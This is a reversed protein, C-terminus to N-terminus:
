NDFNPDPGPHQRTRKKTKAEKRWYRWLSRFIDISSACINHCFHTNSVDRKRISLDQLVNRDIDRCELDVGTRCSFRFRFCRFLARVLLLLTVDFAVVFLRFLTFAGRFFLLFVFSRRRRGCTRTLRCRGTRQCLQALARRHRRSGHSRERYHSSRARFCNARMRQRQAFRQHSNKATIPQLTFLQVRKCRNNRTDM